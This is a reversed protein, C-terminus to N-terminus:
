PRSPAGADPAQLKTRPAALVQVTAQYPGGPREDTIVAFVELAPGSGGGVAYVRAHRSGVSTPSRDDKLVEVPRGTQKLAQMLQDIYGEVVQPDAKDAFVSCAHSPARISLVFQGTPTRVAWVAGGEGGAYIKIAEPNEVSMLHHDAAWAQVGEPKGLNKMCVQSFLDLLDNAARAEPSPAEDALASACTAVAALAVVLSALTRFALLEGRKWM